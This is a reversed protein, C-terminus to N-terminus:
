FLNCITRTNQHFIISYYADKFDISTMYCGPRMLKIATELTDMKFHHYCGAENLKKLSFMVM